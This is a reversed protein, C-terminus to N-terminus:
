NLPYTTQLSMYKYTHSLIGKIQKYVTKAINSLPKQM